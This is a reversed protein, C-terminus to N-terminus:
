LCDSCHHSSEMEEQAAVLEVLTTHVGPQFELLGAGEALGIDSVVDCLVCRMM